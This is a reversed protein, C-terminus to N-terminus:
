HMSGVVYREWIYFNLICIHLNFALLYVLPLLAKALLLYEVLLDCLVARQHQPKFSFCLSWLKLSVVRPIELVLFFNVNILDVGIFIM